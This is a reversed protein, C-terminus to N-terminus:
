IQQKLIYISNKKLEVVMRCLRANTLLRQSRAALSGKGEAEELEAELYVSIRERRCLNKSNECGVPHRKGAM